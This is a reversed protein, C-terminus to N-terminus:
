CTITHNDDAITLALLSTLAKDNHINMNNYDDIAFYINRFKAELNWM